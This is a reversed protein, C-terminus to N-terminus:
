GAALRALDRASPLMDVLERADSSVRRLLSSTAPAPASAPAPAFEPVPVSAPAPASVPGGPQVGGPAALALLAVDAEDYLREVSRVVQDDVSKRYELEAHVRDLNVLLDKGIVSRKPLMLAATRADELAADLWGVATRNGVPTLNTAAVKVGAEFADRSSALTQVGVRVRAAPSVGSSVIQKVAEKALEYGSLYLAATPVLGIGPLSRLSSIAHDFSAAARVANDLRVGGDTSTMAAQAFRAANSGHSGALSVAAAWSPYRVLRSTVDM